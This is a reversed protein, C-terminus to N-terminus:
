YTTRKEAEEDIASGAAEMDQGIGSITNCGTFLLPLTVILMLLYRKDIHMETDEQHPHFGPIM